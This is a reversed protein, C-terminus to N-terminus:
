TGQFGYSEFYHSDDDREPKASVLESAAPEKGSASGTAEPSAGVLDQVLMRLQEFKANASRETASQTEGSKKSSTGTRGQEAEDDDSWDNTELVQSFLIDATSMTPCPHTSTCLM